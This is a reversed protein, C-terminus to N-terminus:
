ESLSKLFPNIETKMIDATFRAVFKDIRKQNVFDTITGSKKGQFRKDKGQHLLTGKKNIMWRLSKASITLGKRKIWRALKEEFDTKKNSKRKGRGVEWANFLWKFTSFLVAKRIDKENSIEIKFTGPIKNSVNQKKKNARAVIDKVIENLFREIESSQLAM